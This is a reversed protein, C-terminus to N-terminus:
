KDSGERDRYEQIIKPIDQVTLRGHFRDNVAIVPALGCAGICAVVEITFLGDRTCEGPKIKLEAMLSNLLRESGKVHCATGRCVRIVYKGPKSFTFQNYFSAVGYVKATSIGLKSAIEDVSERSIFGDRSQAEQLLPILMERPLRKSETASSM